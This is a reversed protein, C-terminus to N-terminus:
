PVLNWMRVKNAHKSNRFGIQKLFKRLETRKTLYIKNQTAINSPSIGLLILSDRVQRLLKQNYNTIVIQISSQHNLKYIGGDTDYLGRICAKVYERNSNIWNPIVLQNKIKNGPVFGKSELFEVIKRSTAVLVFTNKNKVKFYVVEISFLKEILPKVYNLLYERDFRSDGSIRAQYTGIKYSKIKTLNGDGLMIGYFEALEISEKPYRIKKVLSDASNKGGKSRGWNDSLRQVIHQDFKRGVIGCLVEYAVSSLLRKETRVENCLYVDNMNLLSALESWTKGIKATEILHKQIGKSLKIRM